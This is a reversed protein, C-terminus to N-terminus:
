RDVIEQVVMRKGTVSELIDSREQASPIEDELTDTTRLLLRLYDASSVIRVDGVAPRLPSDLADALRLIGATAHAYFRDVLPEDDVVYTNSANHWLIAYLFASRDVASLPERQLQAPPNKLLTRLTEFSVLGRDSQALVPRNDSLLASAEGPVQGHGGIAHAYCAAVLTRREPIHLHGLLNRIQLQDFISAALAAVKHSHRREFDFRYNRALNEFAQVQLETM